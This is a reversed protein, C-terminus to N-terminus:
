FFLRNVIQRRVTCRQIPQITLRVIFRPYLALSIVVIGLLLNFRGHGSAFSALMTRMAVLLCLAPVPRCHLACFNDTLCGGYFDYKFCLQNGPQNLYKMNFKHFYHPLVNKGECGSPHLQKLPPPLLGTTQNAQLGSPWTVWPWSAPGENQPFIRPREEQRRWHYGPPGM